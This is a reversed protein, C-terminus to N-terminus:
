SLLGEVLEAALRRDGGCLRAIRVADRVDRSGTRAVRAAIEAALEPDVGERGTLVGEAVARFESEKYEPLPLVLFRSLLERPLREIGNAAAFVTVVMRRDEHHGHKAVAVRGTEMLSLLVGLDRGAAKDLEDILLWRPPDALLLEALGARSSAGGLVLRARPLRELEALLLSKSSGPAAVLLAHVPREATLCLRLADKVREHGIVISFLDGPPHPGPAEELSTPSSATLAARVAELDVLRYCRHKQSRLGFRLLGVVVLRGLLPGPAPIEHYEAGVWTPQNAHADELAVMRAAIPRAEPVGDLLRLTDALTAADTM